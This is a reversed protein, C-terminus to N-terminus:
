LKKASSDYKKVEFAYPSIRYWKGKYKDEIVIWGNSLQVTANANSSTDIFSGVSGVVTVPSGVTGQASLNAKAISTKSFVFFRMNKKDANFASVLKNGLRTREDIIQANKVAAEANKSIALIKAIDDQSDVTTKNLLTKVASQTESGYDGDAGFKPLLQKNVTLIAEQLEKVKSGKSGKKLPFEKSVEPTVGGDSNEKVDSDSTPLVKSGSMKKWVYIGAVIVPIAILINRINKKM